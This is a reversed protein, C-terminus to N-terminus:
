TYLHHGNSDAPTVQWRYAPYLTDYGADNLSSPYFYWDGTPPLTWRRYVRRNCQGIAMNGGSCYVDDNYNDDCLQQCRESKTTGDYGAVHMVLSNSLLYSDCVFDNIGATTGTDHYGGPICYDYREVGDSSESMWFMFEPGYVTSGVLKAQSFTFMSGSTIGLDALSAQDHATISRGYYLMPGDSTGLAIRDSDTNSQAFYKTQVHGSDGNRLRYYGPPIYFECVRDTTPTPATKERKFHNDTRAYVSTSSSQCQTLEACVRDSTGTPASSEYHTAYNCEGAHAQCAKATTLFFGADCSACTADGHAVCDEGTVPAGDSCTCINAVCSGGEEHQGAPCDGCINDSIYQGSGDAVPYVQIVTPATCTTLPKCTHVDYVGYGSAADSNSYPVDARYFLKFTGPWAQTAGRDTCTTYTTCIFGNSQSVAFALCAEDADCFAQCRAVEADMSALRGVHALCDAHTNSNECLRRQYVAGTCQRNVGDSWTAVHDTPQQNFYGAPCFTCRTAGDAPCDTGTAATGVTPCTCENLACATGDLHYGADCSACVPDGDAPCAAGTAGIGDACTCQNPACESGELHYGADCSACVANDHASCQVGTAGTGNTCICVNELCTTGNLHYGIDCSACAPDGDAPCDAGTAGTGDACTCQNETCVGEDDHAGAGCTCTNSSGTTLVAAGSCSACDETGHIDCEAGITGTGYSCTCQNSVCATGDLHYGADCSACKADDDAPCDAGSAGTGNTCTCQNAACQDNLLHYGADCSACKADDHTPCDAGTAGDGNECTCEKLACISPGETRYGVAANGNDPVEVKYFYKWTGYWNQTSGRDDCRTYTICNFSFRLQNSTVAFALCNDDADCFPQCRAVEADNSDLRAANTLCAPDNFGIDCIPFQRIENTCQRQVGDDWVLNSYQYTATYSYGAACSACTANGHAPCDAGTAGIGNACTCQNATCVGDADFAGVGCTCTNSSGTTLVAAGSCSACDENGHIDCEAGTTGTGYSCTCANLDCADGDSHFGEDCSACKAGGNFPCATSTAAVGNDCTCQNPSCATGDWYTGQDCPTCAVTGHSACATGVAGHGDDCTCQNLVCEIGEQHYGAECSACKAAGDTLCDADTTGIGHACTCENPACEDGELHFGAACTACKAAGDTPCEAGVAGVGTSCTCQNFTCDGNDLYFGADCSACKAAGDILCDLGTAGSGHACTCENLACDNGEVHYGADCAVCKTAGDAPCELGVAGFGTPCVCENITCNDDNLYFGIDCSTCKDTDHTPCHEGTAAVGDNCTCQNLICEDGEIHYGVDCSACKEIGDTTCDVGTVATGNACTCTNSVCWIDDLYFGADCTACKYTHDTPCATGVAGVGDACECQKQACELRYGPTAVGNTPVDARYWFRMEEFESGGRDDCTTYLHCIIDSYPSVASTVSFALCDAESECITRCAAVEDDIPLRDRKLPCANFATTTTCIRASPSSLHGSSTMCYNKEGNIWKPVRFTYGADCASVCETGELRLGASCSICKAAGHSPCAEVIAAEGDLCTCVNPTCVDGVMHFGEDCVTCVEDGHTTCDEGTAGAGYSCSCVNIACTSGDQHYGVGCALELCESGDKYFGSDCSACYSDGDTLCPFGVAGQGNACTCTNPVCANDVLEYGVNCFACQTTDGSVCAGNTCACEVCVVPYGPFVTGLNNPLNARYFWKRPGSGQPLGRSDAHTYITCIFPDSETVLFAVCESNTDCFTQCRSVEAQMSALRNVHILCSEDDTGTECLQRLLIPNEPEFTTWAVDTWKAGELVYGPDCSACKSAGDYLCETGTVAVGNGSCTCENPACVDGDLHFGDDCSACRTGGHIPCETNNTVGNPCNCVNSECANDEMHFFDDCSVCHETGHTPCAEEYGAVGNACTCQKSECTLQDTLYYWPELCSACRVDTTNCLLGTAAVGKPCRCVVPECTGDWWAWMHDPPCQCQFADKKTAGPPCLICPEDLNGTGYRFNTRVMHDPCSICQDRRLRIKDEPCDVYLCDGYQCEVCELGDVSPQWNGPCPLCHSGNFIEHEPCHQCFGDENKYLPPDCTNCTLECNNVSAAEVLQTCLASTGCPVDTCNNHEFDGRITPCELINTNSGDPYVILNAISRGRCSEVVLALVCLFLLRM